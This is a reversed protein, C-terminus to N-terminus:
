LDSPDTVASLRGLSLAMQYLLAHRPQAATLGTLEAAQRLRYRVTNPHVFLARASGEISSGHAFYTALTEVLNGRSEALPTYALEVLQRRAELDGMLIREGLLEFAPVPRPAEPWGPAARYGAVAENASDHASRLDPAVPGAVVPGDGFLDVLSAAAKEADTVGGLVIVLRDGQVACLAEMGASRARRRIADFVGAETQQTPVAGLVVAVGARGSWGLASARSLMADDGESRVVSDVVLAELRADWAGRQEAARAYVEATAFAVERAYRMVAAHVYPADDVDVISDVNEEVVDIGLRVMDVTQHLTIVGTLARPAAGFVESAVAIDSIPAGGARYWEVFARMGAQVILSVWSRAEASLDRFWPMDSEMRATAATSLQGVSRALTDAM